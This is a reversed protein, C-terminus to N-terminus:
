DKNGKESLWLHFCMKSMLWYCLSYINLDSKSFPDNSLIFRVQREPNGYLASYIWCIATSTQICVWSATTGFHKHVQTTTLWMIHLLTRAAAHGWTGPCYQAVNLTLCWHTRGTLGGSVLSNVPGEAAGSDRKGSRCRVIQTSLSPFSGEGFGSMTCNTERRRSSPWSNGGWEGLGEAENGMMCYVVEGRQRAWRRM